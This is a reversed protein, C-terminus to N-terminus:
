TKSSTMVSYFENATIVGPKFMEDNEDKIVVTSVRGTQVMNLAVEKPEVCEITFNHGYYTITMDNGEIILGVM